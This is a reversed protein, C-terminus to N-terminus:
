RGLLVRRPPRALLRTGASGVDAWVVANGPWPQGPDALAAVADATRAPYVARLTSEYRIALERNTRTSRLVLLRSVPLDILGQSILPWAEASRLAEAKEQSWRVQQELRRIQSHVEIAVAIEGPRAIVLDIVGRVPRWVPVELLRKWGPHIRRLLAEVIAAQIRDHIRPGTRPFMRVSPDLGLVDCTAALVALSAERRGREVLSLHSPDIGAAGAVSRISLGADLRARRLEDGIRTRLDRASRGSRTRLDSRSLRVTTM